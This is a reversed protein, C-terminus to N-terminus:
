RLKWAKLVTMNVNGSSFDDDGIQKITNDTTTIYIHQRDVYLSGRANGIDSITWIIAPSGGDDAELEIAMLSGTSGVGDSLDTNEMNGKATAVLVVGSIVTPSSWVKEGVDLMQEWVLTGAGNTYNNNADEKLNSANVTYIYYNEDNAAWDTGGTGFTLLSSNDNDRTIASSVSIPNGIGANWLPIQKEDADAGHPNVGDVANIEWLRGDMDGVFVRDIYGDNTTDFLTVAGPIDNISDTYQQSFYWLREGTELDFAFVNIGGFPTYDLFGTATFVMWKLEYGTIEGGEYIPFKVNGISVRFSHGMGGPVEDYNTPKPNPPDTIEWLVSFSDPDTIDLAFLSNGGMGESCVLITRWEKETEPNEDHDYYIDMAAPSGDVAAFNQVANPDTRDNQLKGLLNNPIFAWQEKGTNIDIAHLMGYLDGVYATETRNKGTRSNQTVIVPASHMIGGLKNPWEIDNDKGRLRNIVQIEDDNDKDDPTVDLPVILSAVNGADFNIKEWDGLVDQQSTFVERGFFNGQGADDISDATDWEASDVSINDAQVNYRRFHGCYDPYEFSGQYVYPHLVIPTARAYEQNSVQFKINFLTNLVYRIGAINKWSCDDNEGCSAVRNDASTIILDSGTIEVSAPSFLGNEDDYYRTDTSNDTLKKIRQFQTGDTWSIRIGNATIINTGINRFIINKLKTKDKTVTTLDIQLLNGPESGIITTFNDANFTVQTHLTDNYDLQLTFNEDFIDKTFEFDFSHAEPQCAVKGSGTCEAYKHGALYVVYGNDTDGYAHGGVYYDWGAKDITFRTVTDVYVSPNDQTVEPNGAPTEDPPSGVDTYPDDFVFPRWSQLHGGEPEYVFDGVQPPATAVDNYIIDPDSTGGNHGMGKTSLFRGNQSHEFVEIAACEALLNKGTEIFEKIKIVIDEVDPLGNNNGDAAYSDYGTWHPVWLFDYEGNSLINDRVQNPTLVDYADTCIGALRLYSELIQANGTDKESDNLLAIKLPTGKMERYVPVAFPVQAVHVEVADWNMQNIITKATAADTQDIIFPGGSYSVKQFNDDAKFTLAKDGGAHDYLAAVAIEGTSNDEIAFDRGNIDGKEGNIIWYVTIDNEGDSMHNLLYFVLGYAELIGGDASKQYLSDMPIILSGAPFNREEGFGGFPLCFLILFILCIMNKM